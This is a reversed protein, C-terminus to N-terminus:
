WANREIAWKSLWVKAVLAWVVNPNQFSADHDITCEHCPSDVNPPGSKNSIEVLWYLTAPLEHEEGIAVTHEVVVTQSHSVM